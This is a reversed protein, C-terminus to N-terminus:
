VEGDDSGKYLPLSRRVFDRFDEDSLNVNDVNVRLLDVLYKPDLEATPEMVEDYTYDGMTRVSGTALGRAITTLFDDM